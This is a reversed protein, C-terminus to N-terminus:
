LRESSSNAPIILFLRLISSLLPILWSLQIFRWNTISGKSNNLYNIIMNLVKSSKVRLGTEIKSSINKNLTYINKKQRLQLPM